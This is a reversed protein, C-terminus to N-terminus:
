RSLLFWFMSMLLILGLCGLGCGSSKRIEQVHRAAEESNLAGLVMSDPQHLDIQVFPTPARRGNLINTCCGTQKYGSDMLPAIISAYARPVYGIEHGGVLRIRIANNDYENYRDRVFYVPQDIRLHKDITAARGEYVVGAVSFNAAFAPKNAEREVAKEAEFELRRSKAVKRSELPLVREVALHLTRRERETVRGDELAKSFTDFLFEIAPFGSSVNDKLWACLIEAETDTIIGDETVTELISVLEAIIGAEDFGKRIALVRRPNLNDM